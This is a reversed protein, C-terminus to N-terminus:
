CRCKEGCRCLEVAELHGEGNCKECVIFTFVGPPDMPDHTTVIGEDCDPCPEYNTRM